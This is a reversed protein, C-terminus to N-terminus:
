EWKSFFEYMVIHIGPKYKKITIHIKEKQFIYTDGEEEWHENGESILNEISTYFEENPLEEFSAYRWYYCNDVGNESLVWDHMKVKPFDTNTIKSLAKHQAIEEPGYFGYTFVLCTSILIISIACIIAISIKILNM